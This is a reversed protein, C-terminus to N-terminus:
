GPTKGRSKVMYVEINDTMRFVDIISVVSANNEDSYVVGASSSLKGYSRSFRM